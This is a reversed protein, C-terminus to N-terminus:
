LRNLLKTTIGQYDLAARSEPAYDFLTQKTAQAESVAADQRVHGLVTHAGYSDTVANLMSTRLAGRLRPNFRPLVFGVFRLQKNLEAQVGTALQMLKALGEVAFAEPETAVVYVNAACFAGFTMGDLHGPPCDLVAYDFRSALQALRDRLRYYPHADKQKRVKDLSEGLLQHSPLLELGQTVSVTPWAAAQAAPAVLLAGVHHAANKGAGYWSSLNCQEDLDVVLVRQGQRALAAALSGATTTKGVGGKNNSVAITVV